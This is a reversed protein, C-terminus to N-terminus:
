FRHLLRPPLPLSPLIGEDAFPAGADGKKRTIHHIFTCKINKIASFQLFLFIMFNTNWEFFFYIGHTEVAELFESVLFPVKKKEHMQNKFKPFKRQSCHLNHLHVFKSNSLNIFPSHLHSSISRFDLLHMNEQTFCEFRSETEEGDGSGKLRAGETVGEDFFQMTWIENCSPLPPSSLSLCPWSFPSM